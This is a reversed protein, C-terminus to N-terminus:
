YDAIDEDDELDMGSSELILSQLAALFLYTLYAPRNKETLSAPLIDGEELDKDNVGILLHDRIYIRIASCSRMVADAVDDQLRIEGQGFNRRKIVKQLVQIDEQAKERLSSLWLENLEPDNDPADWNSLNVELSDDSLKKLSLLVVTLAEPDINLQLRIM